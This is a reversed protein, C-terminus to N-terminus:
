NSSLHVIHWTMAGYKEPLIRFYPEWIERGQGRGPRKAARAHEASAKVPKLVDAGVDYIFGSQPVVRPRGLM